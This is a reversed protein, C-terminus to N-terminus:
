LGVDINTSEVDDWPLVECTDLFIDLGHIDNIYLYYIYRKDSEWTFIEQLEPVIENALIKNISVTKGASTKLTAEVRLRINGQPVQHLYQPTMDYATEHTRHQMLDEDYYGHQLLTHNASTTATPIWTGNGLGQINAATYQAENVFSRYGDYVAYIKIDQLHVTYTTSKPEKLYIRFGIKSNLHHFPLRVERFANAKGVANIETNKIKDTDVYDDGQKVRSVHAVVCAECDAADLNYEDNILTQGKFPKNITINNATIEVDSASLCPAVARFEYPYGALDWYRLVQTGIGEYQWHTVSNYDVEYGNMIEQQATQGFAKWTHVRFNTHTEELAARTEEVATQAMTTGFRMPERLDVVKEEEITGQSSCSAILLVTALLPIYRFLYM